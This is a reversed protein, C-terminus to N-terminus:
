HQQLQWTNLAQHLCTTEAPPPELHRLHERSSVPQSAQCSSVLEGTGPFDLVMDVGAAASCPLM